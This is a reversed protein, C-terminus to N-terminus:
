RSKLEVDIRTAIDNADGILPFDPGMVGILAVGYNTKCAVM